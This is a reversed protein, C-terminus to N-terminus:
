VFVNNSGTDINAGCDLNSGIKAVAKNEAFVTTSGSITISTHPGHQPWTDDVRHILKDNAKVTAAGTKTQRPTEGCAGDDWDDFRAIGDM